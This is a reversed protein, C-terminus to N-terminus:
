WTYGVYSDQREQCYGLFDMAIKTYPVGFDYKINSLVTNFASNNRCKHFFWGTDMLDTALAVSGVICGPRFNDKNGTNNPDMLGNPDVIDFLVNSCVKTQKYSDEEIYVYSEGREQIVKEVLEVVTRLNLEM